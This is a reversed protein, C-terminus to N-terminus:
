ETKKDTPTERFHYRINVKNSEATIEEESSEIFNGNEDFHKLFADEEENYDEKEWDYKKPSPMKSRVLFALLLGTMFGGLHGEWSIGDKVPFIYWLMSGYIFVVVLSLAILRYYKTVIGKFFIFSVLFYIVGSAGIHYSPRGIAWTIFGSLLIGTVLVKFANNRYFYFLAAMLVALPITNNYLHEVSGHILPSLVIGRLGSLTKPFIGYDNFNTQLRLELWFVTWILLVAVLPAILVSNTFKFYQSESM